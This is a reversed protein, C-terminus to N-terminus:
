KVTVRSSENGCRDIASVVVAAINGATPDPNFAISPSGAPVVTFHWRPGYRAYVAYVAIREGAAPHLALTLTGNDARQAKVSPPPPSQDDLWPMTPVLAPEAYPGARLADYKEPKLVSGVSWLFQGSSQAARRTLDIQALIESPGRSGISLGPWVYRRMTNQGIWWNLLARFDQDGGIEWYLQPALYDLWGKNLWLRSDSYLVAYSNLGTVGPPNNPQWIGFPAFGVKVWSKIKKTEFYIRQVIQNINDRRWDDRNMRGGSRQYRAFSTDDPFDIAKDNEKARYPYYYDDTHVGDIDYRKVIDLVVSLTHRQALPEGPDMWLYKGYQKVIEPHTRSIHNVAVPGELGSKARYLNFWAHLEMGRRHAEDTWIQLPDWYPTPSQGQVGTLYKSWPELESNYLADAAPRVQLIIANLHLAACRDLIDFMERKQQDVSLGPKSPWNANGVSAVWAARFERPAPPPNDAIPQAIAFAGGLVCLVGLAGLFFNQLRKEQRAQRGQRGQRGQRNQSLSASAESYKLM